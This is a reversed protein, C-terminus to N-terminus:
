LGYSHGTGQSMFRDIVIPNTLNVSSMNIKKTENENSM